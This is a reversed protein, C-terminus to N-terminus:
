RTPETLSMGNNKFIAQTEDELKKQEETVPSNRILVFNAGPPYQSIKAELLDRSMPAYQAVNYSQIVGIGLPDTTDPLLVQYPPIASRAADKLEKCMQKGVCRRLVRSILARDAFWGQNAILAEGLQEGICVQGCAHMGPGPNDLIDAKSFWTRTWKVYHDWLPEEDSKTGYSKLYQLADLIVETDARDPDANNLVANDLVALAVENMVPSTAHESVWRLISDNCQTENAAIERKLLLRADDPSFRVLYALALSHSDCSYPRHPENLKAIMRSAAAGTGFRVLLSGLTRERLQDKTQVFADAWLSEFQPLPEPPLFALAGASLSPTFSGIQALVERRAGFPELEYWRKLAASKLNERSYPGLADDNLPPLKALTQLTPLIVPSRLLDWHQRLDDIQSQGDLDLLSASLLSGMQAKIEPTNMNISGFRLLTQVTKARPVPEKKSISSFVTQWLVPDFSKRQQRISAANSGSIVHLFSMTTFFLPSIPFDPEEIHRNMSAIAVDRTSDSQGLLGMSCESAPFAYGDRLRNTMEDIAAPTALYRLDANGGEDLKPKALIAKLKETQWEPTAPVIHLEIENSQLGGPKTGSVRHSIVMVRYAGPQDFRIYENLNISVEVPKSKLLAPWSWGHGTMLRDRSLYTVLPDSWGTSPAVDFSEFDFEGGRDARNCCPAIAYETDNPSTFTLKLPIREGIHFVTQGNATQLKCTPRVNQATLLPAAFVLIALGLTRGGTLFARM